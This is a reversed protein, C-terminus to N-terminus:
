RSGVTARLGSRRFEQLSNIEMWFNDIGEIIKKKLFEAATSTTCRSLTAVSNGDDRNPQNQPSVIVRRNLRSGRGVGSMM